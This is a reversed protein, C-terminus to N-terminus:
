VASWFPDAEFTFPASVLIRTSPWAPVAFDFPFERSIANPGPFCSTWTIGVSYNADKEESRFDSESSPGRRNWLVGKGLSGRILDQNNGLLLNPATKGSRNKMPATVELSFTAQATENQTAPPSKIAELLM